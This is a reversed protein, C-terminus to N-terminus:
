AYVIGWLPAHRRSGISAFVATAAWVGAAGVAAFLGKYLVQPTLWTTLPWLLKMWVAALVSTLPPFRTIRNVPIGNGLMAYLHADAGFVLTANRGQLIVASLWYLTFAGLVLLAHVGFRSTLSGVGAPAAAEAPPADAVVRMAAKRGLVDRRGGAS